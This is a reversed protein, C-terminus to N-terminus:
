AADAVLGKETAWQIISDESRADAIRQQLQEYQELLQEKKQEYNKIQLNKHRLVASNICIVTLMLTIIAMVVALVTKALPTLSYSDAVAAKTTAVPAVATQRQLRNLTEVTFLSSTEQKEQALNTAFEKVQPAQEQVPLTSVAAIDGQQEAFITSNKAAVYAPGSFENTDAEQLIRYREKIQANHAVAEQEENLTLITRELTQEM